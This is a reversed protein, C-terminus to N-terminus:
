DRLPGNSMALRVGERWAEAEGNTTLISDYGRRSADGIGLGCPLENVKVGRLKWALQKTKEIQDASLQNEM